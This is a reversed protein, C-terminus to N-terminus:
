PQEEAEHTEPMTFRSEPAKSRVEWIYANRDSSGSVIHTGDPSFDARVYFTKVQHGRFQAVPPLEPHM